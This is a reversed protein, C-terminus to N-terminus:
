EARAAQEYKKKLSRPVASSKVRERCSARGIKASPGYNPCRRESQRSSAAVRIAASDRHRACDGNEFRSTSPPTKGPHRDSRRLSIPLACTQVGTVILDRIGDEAQFFFVCHCVV